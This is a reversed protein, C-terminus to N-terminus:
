YDFRLMIADTINGNSSSQVYDFTIYQKMLGPNDKFGWLHLFCERNPLNEKLSVLQYTSTIGDFSSKVFFDRNTDGLRKFLLKNKKNYISIQCYNESFELVGYYNSLRNDQYGFDLGAGLSKLLNIKMPSIKTFYGKPPLKHNSPLFGQASCLNIFIISILLFMKSKYKM